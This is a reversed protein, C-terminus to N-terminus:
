KWGQAKLTARSTDNDRVRVMLNGNVAMGDLAM